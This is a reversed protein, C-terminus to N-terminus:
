LDDLVAGLASLGEEAHKTSTGLSVRFHSPTGFFRGPLVLIGADIAHRTVTDGDADDHKLFAMTHGPEVVGTVDERGETFAHLLTANERLLNRSRQEFREVNSLAIRALERSTAAVDIAHWQASKARRVFRENGILWGIRLNGLGFFKTLSNVVVTSELGAATVGGFATGQGQSPQRMYPAYVEDVLFTAERDKLESALEKLTGRTTLRGSPNHRNTLSVLCTDTTVKSTISEPNVSYRDSETRQFHRVEAGLTRASATLPEYGPAETLVVPKQPGDRRACGSMATITALVNATTAGATVLINDSAVSSDYQDAILSELTVDQQPRPCELLREILERNDWSLALDSSGLDYDVTELRNSIWELYEINEVLSRMVNGPPPRCCTRTQRKENVSDNGISM